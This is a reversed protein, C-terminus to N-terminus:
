RRRAKVFVAVAVGGIALGAAAGSLPGVASGTGSGIALGVAGTVMVLLALGMRAVMEQLFLAGFSQTGGDRNLPRVDVVAGRNIPGYVHPYATGDVDEDRVEADLLREPAITLLVLPERVGRYFAAFVGAVQDRRAAHIFGVEALTRGLTSTTYSGSHRAAEWDARTAIHFIRETVRAFRVLAVDRSCPRNGILRDYSRAQGDYGSDRATPEIASLVGSGVEVLRRGPRLYEELWAEAM